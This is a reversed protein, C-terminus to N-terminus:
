VALYKCYINYIIKGFIYINYNEIKIRGPNAHSEYEVVDIIWKM